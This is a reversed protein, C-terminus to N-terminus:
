FRKIYVPAYIEMMQKCHFIFFSTAIVLTATALESSHGLVAYMGTVFAIVMAVIAGMQLLSASVLLNKVKALKIHITMVFYILVATTSLAMAITDSVVFAKFATKRSLIAMGQNPGRNGDYGGPLTFGAAFTVTAILVAVILHTEGIKKLIERQEEETKDKEEEKQDHLNRWASTAGAEILQRRIVFQMKVKSEIFMNKILTSTRIIDLATLHANNVAKRDAKPHTILVPNYNQSEALLHLPTNGSRDEENILSGLLPNALIYDIVSNQGKEVAAHLANRGNEDVMEICDPCKTILEKLSHMSGRTAAVHLATKGEKDKLYAVSEDHQLLQIIIMSSDFYAAWHLPTWGHEDAEKVLFPNGKDNWLVAAHLATRGMPGDHAPLKCAELIAHVLEAHGREAAMYLPTEGADNGEYPFESDEELLFKAVELHRNRVAEHLATNKKNNAVGLLDRVAGTGIELEENLAKAGAVLAKVVDIHGERAAVHLATEGKLNVQKLLSPCAKLTVDVCQTKGFEAAVHLVTNKNPTTQSDLQKEQQLKQTNGEIVAKYLSSAMRSVEMQRALTIAEESNETFVSRLQHKSDHSASRPLARGHIESIKRMSSYPPAAYAYRVVGLALIAQLDEM